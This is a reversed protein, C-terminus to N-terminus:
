KKDQPKEFLDDAVAQNDVISEFQRIFHGSLTSVDVRIGKAGCDKSALTGVSQRFLVQQCEGWLNQPALVPCGLACFRGFGVASRFDM